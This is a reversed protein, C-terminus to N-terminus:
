PTPPKSAELQFSFCLPWARALRADLRLILDQLGIPFRPNSFTLGRLAVDGGFVRRCLRRMRIPSLAYEYDSGGGVKSYLHFRNILNMALGSPHLANPEFAFFCGGPRLVRACEALVAALTGQGVIHHLVMNCVVLDVSADELPIETSDTLLPECYRSADALFRENVETGYVTKGGLDLLPLIDGSGVGVFLLAEAEQVRSGLAAITKERGRDWFYETWGRPTPIIGEGYSFEEEHKLAREDPETM